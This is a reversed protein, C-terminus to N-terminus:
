LRLPHVVKGTRTEAITLFSGARSFKSCVFMYGSSGHLTGREENSEANRAPSALALRKDLEGKDQGDEEHHHHADEVVAEHDHALLDQGHGGAFAGVGCRPLQGVHGDIFAQVGGVIRRATDANIEGPRQAPDNNGVDPIVAREDARGLDENKIRLERPRGGVRPLLCGIGHRRVDGVTHAAHAAKISRGFVVQEGLTSNQGTRISPLGHKPFQGEGAIVQHIAIGAADIGDLNVIRVGEDRGNTVEHGM